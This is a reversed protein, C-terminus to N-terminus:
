VFVVCTSSVIRVAARPVPLVLGLMSMTHRARGPYRSRRLRRGSGVGLRPTDYKTPCVDGAVHLRDGARDRRVEAGNHDVQDSTSRLGDGAIQRSLVTQSSSKGAESPRM